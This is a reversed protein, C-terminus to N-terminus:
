LRSTAAKHVPLHGVLCHMSSLHKSTCCVTAFSRVREDGDYREVDVTGVTELAELALKVDRASANGPLYQTTAGNVTLTFDGGLTVSTGSRARSVTM